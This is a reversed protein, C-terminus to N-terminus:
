QKHDQWRSEDAIGRTARNDWWPRCGVVSAMIAIVCKHECEIMRM